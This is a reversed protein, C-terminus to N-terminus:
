TDELKPMAKDDFDLNDLLQRVTSNYGEVKYDPAIQAWPLLVFSRKAFRPHPIELNSKEDPVRVVGEMALIDLDIVRDKGRSRDRGMQKEVELLLALLREPSLRTEIEFVGNVFLHDSDMDVPETEYFSSINKLRVGEHGTVLAVARKCNAVKDGLNSGIAIFARKYSSDGGM